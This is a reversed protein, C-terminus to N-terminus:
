LRQLLAIIKWGESGDVCNDFDGVQVELGLLLLSFVVALDIVHHDFAWDCPGFSRM